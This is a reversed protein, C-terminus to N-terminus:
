QSGRSLSSTGELSRSSSTFAASFVVGVSDVVSVLLSICVVAVTMRLSAQIYFSCCDGCSVPDEM